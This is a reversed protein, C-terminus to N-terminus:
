KGARESRSELDVLGEPDTLIEERNDSVASDFGYTVTRRSGTEVRPFAHELTSAAGTRDFAQTHVAAEGKSKTAKKASKSSSFDNTVNHKPTAITSVTETAPATAGQEKRDIFNLGGVVLAGVAIAAGLGVAKGSFRRPPPAFEATLDNFMETATQYRLWVDQATARQVIRDLEYSVRQNIERPSSTQLALPEQGTLLFYMTAGLGYIDSRPDAGGWYQEPPSYGGSVVHTNDSDEAYPRAIGFDVLKIDGTTDVMINSPKLDRYIVPPRQSHLYDLVECVKAAWEKVEFEMFPHGQDMLKHQLNEGEVYEMVLFYNGDEEFYDHIVVINPHKLSSLVTMERQFFALAQKRDEERFFDVRLRKVVCLRNSVHLDQALYITGMGGQGLQKVIEWRGVLVQQPAGPKKSRVFDAAAPMFDVTSHEPSEYHRHEPMLTHDGRNVHSILL